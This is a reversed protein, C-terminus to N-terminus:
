AQSSLVRLEVVDPAWQAANTHKAEDGPHIDTSRSQLYGSKRVPQVRLPKVRQQESAEDRFALLVVEVQTCGMHRDLPDVAQATRNPHRTIRTGKRLDDAVDATKPWVDDVRVSGLRADKAAEGGPRTANRVEDVRKVAVQQM